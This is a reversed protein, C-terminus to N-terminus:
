APPPEHPHQRSPQRSHAGHHPHTAPLSIGTGHRQLNSRRAGLSTTGRTTPDAAPRPPAHAHPGTAAPGQRGAYTRSAPQPRTLGDTRQGPWVSSVRTQCPTLRNKKPLRQLAAWLHLARTGFSSDSAKHLPQQALKRVVQFDVAADVVVWLHHTHDRPQQHTDNVADKIVAM